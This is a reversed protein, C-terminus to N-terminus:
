LWNQTFYNCVPKEEQKQNDRGKYGKGLGKGDEDMKKIKPVVDNRAKLTKKEMHAVQEIEALLHTSFQGVVDRTPRTDVMLTSRALAIRFSLESHASLVKSTLKTVAKVLVSPDPESAQLEAARQRWRMWRKLGLVADGLTLAEPPSEINQLLTQKEGLGGPQYTLQLHCLISFVNLRKSAVLEERRQEPVASLLMSAVRRELRQWKKVQLTMPAQPGHAARELPAMKIHDQYWQQVQKVMEGWWVESTTSLDSIAPELLALWDGMKLPGEQSDWEALKPLDLAGSRVVEVGNQAGVDDRSMMHKQLEQMNQMMLLILDMQNPEVKERETGGVGTTAGPAETRAERQKAKESEPTYFKNELRILAIEEKLARNEQDALALRESMERLEKGVRLKRMHDEAM